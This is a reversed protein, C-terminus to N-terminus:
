ISPQRDSGLRVFERRGIPASEAASQLKESRRTRSEHREIVVATGTGDSRVARGVIHLKLPTVNGPRVPWFVSLAIKQKFPLPDPIQRLVGSSSMNITQGVGNM